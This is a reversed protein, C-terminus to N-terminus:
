DGEWAQSSRIAFDRLKACAVERMELREVRAGRPGQRLWASMAEVAGAEGEIWVEVRGDLLNRVWGAVGLQQAKERAHYRFAVGQVRGGVFGHRASVPSIPERSLGGDRGAEV